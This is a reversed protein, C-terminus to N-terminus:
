RNAWPDAIAPADIRGAVVMMAWPDIIGDSVRAIFDGRLARQWPDRLDRPRWKTRNQLVVRALPQAIWRGENVAGRTRFVHAEVGSPTRTFATAQRGNRDVLVLVTDTFQGAQARERVDIGQQRLGQRITDASIDDVRSAVLVVVSDIQASASATITLLGLALAFRM